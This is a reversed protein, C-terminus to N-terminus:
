SNCGGADKDFLASRTAAVVDQPTRDATTVVLDAQAYLPARRRFLERLHDRNGDQALPRGHGDGIRRFLVEEPAELYVTTGLRRMIEWNESGVVVGGGTGVVLRSGPKIERLVRTELARFADEGELAFIEPISRGAARSLEEDLDLYAYGLSRALLPGITSKGAGMFGLLLINRGQESPGSM